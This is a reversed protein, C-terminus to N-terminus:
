PWDDNSGSFWAEDFGPLAIGGYWDTFTYWSMAESSKGVRLM